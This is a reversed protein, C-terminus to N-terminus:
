SIDSDSSSDYELGVLSKLQVLKMDNLSCGSKADAGKSIILEANDSGRKLDPGKDRHSAQLSDTDDTVDVSSKSSNAPSSTRGHHEKDILPTCIRKPITEASYSEMNKRKSTYGRPQWPIGTTSPDLEYVKKVFRKYEKELEEVKREFEKM